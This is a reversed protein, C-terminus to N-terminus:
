VLEKYYAIMYDCFDRTDQTLYKDKRYSLAINRTKDLGKIPLFKIQEDYLCRKKASQSAITIGANVNLLETRLYHDCEMVINLKIGLEECLQDMQTRFPFGKQLAIFKEGIIDDVGVSDKKALPHDQHVAVMFRDQCLIITNMDDRNIEPSTIGIDIKGSELLQIIDQFEEVSQRWKVAPHSRMFGEIGRMFQPSTLSVFLTHEQEGKMENIEKKANDIDLLIRNMRSLFVEGYANLVISRGSRDFLPVGLESELRSIVVSIAPQSVNLQEASRTIHQNLAVVQFYRLQMLEM